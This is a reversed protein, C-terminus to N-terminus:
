DVGQAYLKGNINDYIIRDDDDCLEVTPCGNNEELPFPEESDYLTENIPEHYKESVDDYFDNSHFGNIFNNAEILEIINDVEDPNTPEPLIMREWTTVKYDIYM